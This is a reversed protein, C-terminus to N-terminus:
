GCIVHKIIYGRNITNRMEIYNIAKSYQRLEEDTARNLMVMDVYDKYRVLNDHHYKCLPLICFAENVQRSAFILNHHWEIKGRCEVNRFICKTYFPDSAMEERLKPPIPRM